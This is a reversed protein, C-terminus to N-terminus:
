RPRSGPRSCPDARRLSIRCRGQWSTPGNMEDGSVTLEGDMPKQRALAPLYSAHPWRTPDM